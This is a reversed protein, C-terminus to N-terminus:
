EVSKALTLAQNKLEQNAPFFKAVTKYVETAEESRGRGQLIQGMRLMMFGTLENDPFQTMMEQVIDLCEQSKAGLFYSEGLFFYAEIIKPSTPYKQTIELFIKAAASYDKKRFEALGQASLPSSLEWSSTPKQSVSALSRLQFSQPGPSLKDIKELAPLQAAVEQQFDYIQSRLEAVQLKERELNERLSSIKQSDEKRSSFHDKFLAYSEMLGVTLVLCFIIFLFNQNRM